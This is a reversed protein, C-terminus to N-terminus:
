LSSLDAPIQLNEPVSTDPLTYAEVDPTTQHQPLSQSQSPPPSPASIDYKKWLDEVEKERQELLPIQEELCGKVSAEHLEPLPENTRVLEQIGSPLLQPTNSSYITDMCFSPSRVSPMSTELLFTTLKLLGHM